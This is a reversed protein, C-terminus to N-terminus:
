HSKIQSAVQSAILGRLKAATPNPSTQLVGGDLSNLSGAPGNVGLQRQIELGLGDTVLRAVHPSVGKLRINLQDINLHM